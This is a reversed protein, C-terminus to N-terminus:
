YHCLLTPNEITLQQDSKTFILASVDSIAMILNDPRYFAQRCDLSSM